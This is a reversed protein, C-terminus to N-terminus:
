NELIEKLNLFTRYPASTLLTNVIWAPLTGGPDGYLQQTVEVYNGKPALLWHGKFSTIRISNSDEPITHTAEPSLTIKISKDGQETIKVRTVLDRNKLPWPLDNKMWFVFETESLTKLTKSDSTKDNWKWLNDGDTIVKLAAAVDTKILTVAKYEKIDANESRRTYIKIGNKDKKLEWDQAHLTPSFFLSILIFFKPFSKPILSIHPDLLSM